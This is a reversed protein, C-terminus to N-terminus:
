GGLQAVSTVHRFITGLRHLFDQVVRWVVNDKHVQVHRIHISQLGAGLNNLQKVEASGVDYYEGAGSRMVLGHVTELKADTLWERRDETRSFIGNGHGM